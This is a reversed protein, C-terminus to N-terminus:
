DEVWDPLATPSLKNLSGKNAEWAAQLWKIRDGYNPIPPPMWSVAFAEDSLLSRLRRLYYNHWYTTQVNYRNANILSDLVDWCAFRWQMDAQWDEYQEPTLTRELHARWSTRPNEQVCEISSPLEVPNKDFWNTGSKHNLAALRNLSVTQPPYKAKFVILEDDTAQPGLLLAVGFFKAFM